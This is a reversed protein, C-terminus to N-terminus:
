KLGAPLAFAVIKSGPGSRLIGGGGAAIVVDQRGDRGQYTM